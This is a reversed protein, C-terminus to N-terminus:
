SIEEKAKCFKPKFQLFIIIAVALDIMVDAFNFIAFNFGCHWYVYDVVGGHIFRDYVNSFGAGVMIGGPIAYCLERNHIIYLMVGFVLTGQIYKLYEGLFAFMSFAVGHNFVLRMNICETTYIDLVKTYLENTELYYMEEAKLVFFDKIAQDILFIGIMVLALVVILKSLDNKLM